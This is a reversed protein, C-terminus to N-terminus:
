LLKGFHATMNGRLVAAFGLPSLFVPTCWASSGTSIAVLTGDACPSALVFLEIVDKRIAFGIGAAALEADDCINRDLHLMTRGTLGAIFQRIVFIWQNGGAVDL